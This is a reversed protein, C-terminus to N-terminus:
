NKIVEILDNPTCELAICIKELVDFKIGTTQQTALKGLNQQTIGTEKYLWYRSKNREMLINDLKIKLM